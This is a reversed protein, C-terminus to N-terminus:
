GRLLLLWSAQPAASQATTWRKDHVLCPMVLEGTCSVTGLGRALLSDSGPSPKGKSAQWLQWMVSALPTWNVARFGPVRVCGTQASLALKHAKFHSNLPARCAQVLHMREPNKREFLFCSVLHGSHLQLSPSFATYEIDKFIISTAIIALTWV